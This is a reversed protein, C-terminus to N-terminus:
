IYFNFCFYFYNLLCSPGVWCIYTPGFHTKSGQIISYWSCNIIRAYYAWMFRDRVLDVIRSAVYVRFGLREVGM